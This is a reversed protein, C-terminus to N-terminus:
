HNKFHSSLGAIESLDLELEIEIQEVFAGITFSGYTYFSIKLQEQEIKLLQFPPNGFSDHLALLVYAGKKLPNNQPDTSLIELEIKYLGKSEETVNAKLERQQNKSKANWQGKQPDAPHVILGKHLKLKAKDIMKRCNDSQDKTKSIAKELAKHDTQPLCLQNIKSLLSKTLQEKEQISGQSQILKKDKLNIEEEAKELQKKIISDDAYQYKHSLVLRM